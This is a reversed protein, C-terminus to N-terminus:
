ADDTSIGSDPVVREADRGSHGLALCLLPPLWGCAFHEYGKIKRCMIKHMCVSLTKADSSIM